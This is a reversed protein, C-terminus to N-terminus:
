TAEHSLRRLLGAIRFREFFRLHPELEHFERMVAVEFRTRATRDAEYIIKGNRIVSFQFLLKQHNLIIVEVPRIFGVAKEISYSLMAIDSIPTDDRTLVAFDLDSQPTLRGEASSGFLYVCCIEPFERFIASLNKLKERLYPSLM